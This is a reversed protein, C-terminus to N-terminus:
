QASAATTEAPTKFAISRLGTGQGAASGPEDVDPFRRRLAPEVRAWRRAARRHLRPVATFAVPFHRQVRRGFARTFLGRQDGVAQALLLPCNRRILEAVLPWGPAEFGDASELVTASFRALRGTLQDLPQRGAATSFLTRHGAARDETADQLDDLLQLVFGYGFLFEAEEPALDGAVLYGDALVSTGGKEASLRLLEGEGDARAGGGPAPAQQGLSRVQGRHIALLSAFVRPHRERPLEGEIEGVLDFVVAERADAAEPLEGKLRRGLRRNFGAKAVTSVGPDDLLNDTLPYLMSYSFVSPTAAVPRGLLVQLGNMIWVNRLAQFLDGRGLAIGARAGLERARRVFEVSASFLQRSLPAGRFHAPWDLCAEGFTCIRDELRREWVAREAEADPLELLEAFLGRVLRDIRGRNRWRTWRGIAPGLEEPGPPGAPTRLWARAHRATMVAVEARFAADVDVFSPPLAGPTAAIPDIM